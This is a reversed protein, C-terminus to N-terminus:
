YNSLASHPWKCAFNHRSEWKWQRVQWTVLKRCFLKSWLKSVLLLIYRKCIYYKSDHRHRWLVCIRATFRCHISFLWRPLLTCLVDIPLAFCVSLRTLRTGTRYWLSTMDTVSIVCCKRSTRTFTPSLRRGCIRVHLTTQLLSTTPVGLLRM